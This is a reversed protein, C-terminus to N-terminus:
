SNLVQILAANRPLLWIGQSALTFFSNQLNEPLLCEEKCIAGGRPYVAFDSFEQCTVSGAALISRYWRQCTTRCYEGQCPM